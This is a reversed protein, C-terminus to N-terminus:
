VAASQSCGVAVLLQALAGAGGASCGPGSGGAGAEQQRPAALLAAAAAEELQELSGASRARKSGGPMGGRRPEGSPPVRRLELDTCAGLAAALGAAGGHGREEAALLACSHRLQRLRPLAALLGRWDAATTPMAWCRCLDLHTLGSLRCLSAAPFSPFANGSADLHELLPPLAALPQAALPQAAAAAAAPGRGGGSAQQAAAHDGAAPPPLAALRNDALLLTRLPLSGLHPPLSELACSSFDLHRRADHAPSCPPDLSM